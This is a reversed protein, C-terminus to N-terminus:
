NNEVEEFRKARYYKTVLRKKKRKPWIAIVVVTILLGIAILQQM